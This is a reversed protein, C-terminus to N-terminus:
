EVIIQGLAFAIFIMLGMKSGLPITDAIGFIFYAYWGALLAIAFQGSWHESRELWANWLSYVNVIWLALYIIIGGYGLSVGVNLWINHAHAIDVYRPGFYLIPALERFMNFGLGTFPFDQLVKVAWEWVQFRFALTRTLFAGGINELEIIDLTINESKFWYWYVFIVVSLPFIWSFWRGKPKFIILGLYLIGVFLGLWAGRTQALIWWLGQLALVFALCVKVLWVPLPTLKQIWSSKGSIFVQWSILITLPTFLTLTGSIANPQFGINIGPLIQILNPLSTSVRTLIPYKDFWDAGILGLIAIGAGMGVFGITAWVLISQDFEDGIQNKAINDRLRIIVFYYSIGLVIGLVKGASNELDPTIALSLLTWLALFFLPLNLPTIPLICGYLLYRILWFLPILLYFAFYPPHDLVWFGTIFVLVLLEWRSIKILIEKM